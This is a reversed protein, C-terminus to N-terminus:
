SGYYSAVAGRKAQLKESYRAPMVPTKWRGAQMIAPLDCGHAVLDQTMGVRCSHGSIGQANMGAARARRKLIRSIDGADLQRNSANGGRSVSRFLPGSGIGAAALWTKLAATAGPGIYLTRGEGAQDTKSKRILATATGEKDFTIDEALLAVVESRRALLDRMVLVLANDRLDIVREEGTSEIIKGATEHTIGTAQRQRTGKNRALRKLALRVIGERTPDPLKAARHLHAVTAVYRRVSAVAHNIGLADVFAAVTNPLAPLASLGQTICWGTFLETDARLARLTNESLAGQAAQTYEVLAIQASEIIALPNQPTSVPFHITM